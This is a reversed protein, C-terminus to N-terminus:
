DPQENINWRISQCRRGCCHLRCDYAAVDDRINGIENLAYVILISDIVLLKRGLESPCSLFFFITCREPLKSNILSKVAM